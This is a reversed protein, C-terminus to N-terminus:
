EAVPVFRIGQPSAVTPLSMLKTLRGSALDRRFVTIQDDNKNAVLLYNGTPDLAFARPWDGGGDAHEVLELDGSEPDAALVTIRNYGRNAAYVFRGDPSIHIDSAKNPESFADPLTKVTHFVGSFGRGPEFRLSSVSAYMENLVFALPATPHFVLHRPGAGGAVKIKPLPAPELNGKKGLRYVWIEDTGLDPVVILEGDPAPLIMHPHPGEQRESNISSGTHQVQDALGKLRGNGKRRTSSITGSSYNAVLVYKGNESVSVYCPGKGGTPSQNLQRLDGSRPDIAFATIVGGEPGTQHISYLHQDRIALYSSYPVADFQKVAALEGKSADFRYLGIGDHAKGDGSAVYVWYDQASLPLLSLLVLLCILLRMYTPYFTFVLSVGESRLSWGAMEQKSM